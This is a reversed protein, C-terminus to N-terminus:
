VAKGTQDETEEDMFHLPRWPGPSWSFFWIEKILIRAGAGPRSLPAAQEVRCLRLRKAWRATNCATPDMLILAPQPHMDPIGPLIPLELGAQAVPLGQRLVFFAVFVVGSPFHRQGTGVSSISELKGHLMQSEPRISDEVGGGSTRSARLALCAPPELLPLPGLTAKVQHGCPALADISTSDRRAPIEPSQEATEWLHLM